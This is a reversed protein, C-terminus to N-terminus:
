RWLWFRENGVCFSLLHTKYWRLINVIQAYLPLLIKAGFIQEKGVSGVKGTCFWRFCSINQTECLQFISEFSFRLLDEHQSYCGMYFFDQVMKCMEQLVYLNRANSIKCTLFSSTDQVLSIALDSDQM